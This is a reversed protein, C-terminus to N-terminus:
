PNLGIDPVPLLSPLVYWLFFTLSQYLEVYSGVAPLIEVYLAGGSM